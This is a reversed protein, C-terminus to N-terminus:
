PADPVSRNVGKARSTECGSVHIHHWTVGRLGDRSWKGHGVFEGLAGGVGLLLESGAVAQGGAVTRQASRAQLAAVLVADGAAEGNGAAFAPPM